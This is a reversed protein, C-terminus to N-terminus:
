KEDTAREAALAMARPVDVRLIRQFIKSEPPLGASRTLVSRGFDTTLMKSLLTSAGAASALTVPEMIAGAVGGGLIAADIVRQGTPPNEMYQGAREAARALRTFGEIQQREQPTFIASKSKGLRELRGAFKAPSFATKGDSANEFADQLIAYKVTTKGQDDLRGMLKAALQPRDNKVFTKLIQDTDFDDRGAKRIARDKFPVVNTRYFANAERYLRGIDGGERAAFDDLDRELAGRIMKIAAVEEDSVGGSVAQREAKRLEQGLRSRTVRAVDFPMDDLDGYKAVSSLIKSDRITEPLQGERGAITAITQRLNNLEVRGKAQQAATGVDDYMRSAQTRATNLSRTLSSQLEEGVDDIGQNFQDALGRAARALQHSQKDRFGRTGVLPVRELTTEIRQFAPSQRLEGVTLDVDFIKGQKALDTAVDASKDGRFGRYAKGGLGLAGSVAGGTAAGVGINKLRSEGEVTPALASAAGGALASTGARRLVGGAAGGPIWGTAAVNGIFQGAKAAASQDLLPKDYLENEQQIQRTYEDYRGQPVIGLKEVVQLGMQKAGQGVDVFGKGIGVLVRELPGMDDIVDQMFHREPQVAPKENTAPKQNPAIQGIGQKEAFQIVQEPTTGEPVEFRAIRGDPLHIKAIPM